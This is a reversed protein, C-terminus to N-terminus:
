SCKHICYFLISIFLLIFVFIVILCVRSCKLIIFRLNNIGLNQLLKFIISNDEQGMDITVSTNKNEVLALKQKKSYSHKENRSIKRNM